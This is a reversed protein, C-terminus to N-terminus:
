GDIAQRRLTDGDSLRGLHREEDESTGEDVQRHDQLAIRKPRLRELLSYHPQDLFVLIKQRLDIRLVQANKDWKGHDHFFATPSATAIRLVLGKPLDRFYAVVELANYTKGGSSEGAM